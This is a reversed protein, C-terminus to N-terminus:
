NTNSLASQDSRRSTVSTMLYIIILFFHKPRLGRPGICDILLNPGKGVDRIYLLYTECILFLSYVPKRYNLSTPFNIQSRPISLARLLCELTYRADRVVHCSTFNHCIARIELTFYFLIYLIITKQLQFNMLHM